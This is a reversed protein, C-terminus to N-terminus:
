VRQWENNIFKYGNARLHEQYKQLQGLNSGMSLQQYLRADFYSPFKGQQHPQKGNTYKDQNNKWTTLRRSIEFVKEMEFRMKKGEPNKETWYSCFETIMGESYNSKLILVDEIFKKKRKEIENGNANEMHDGMLNKRRSKTYSKRKDLEFVLRENYYLGNDDKVFKKQITPWAAGFDSGLVTKIEDLSLHGSNFQAYLLDIYCGKLFRSLTSTGGAWDNFYWLVAPDKGM